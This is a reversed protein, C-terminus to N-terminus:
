FVGSSFIKKQGCSRALIRPSSCPVNPTGRTANKRTGRNHSASQHNRSGSFLRLSILLAARLEEVWGLWDFSVTPQPFSYLEAANHGYCQAVISGDANDLVTRIATSAQFM